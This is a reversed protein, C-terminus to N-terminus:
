ANWPLLLIPCAHHTAYPLPNRLGGRDRCFILGFILLALEKHKRM